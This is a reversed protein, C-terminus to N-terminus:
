DVFSFKSSLQYMVVLAGLVLDQPVTVQSSSVGVTENDHLWDHITKHGDGIHPLQWVTTCMVTCNVGEYCHVWSTASQVLLKVGSMKRTFLYSTIFKHTLTRGLVVDGAAPHTDDQIDSGAAVVPCFILRLLLVPPFPDDLLIALGPLQGLIM